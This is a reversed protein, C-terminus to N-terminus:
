SKNNVGKAGDSIIGTKNNAEASGARIRLLQPTSWPLRKEDGPSKLMISELFLWPRWVATYDGTVPVSM